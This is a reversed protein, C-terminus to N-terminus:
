ADARGSVRVCELESVSMSCKAWWPFEDADLKTPDAGQALWGPRAALWYYDGAAMNSTFEAAEGESMTDAPTYRGSEADRQSHLYRVWRTFELARKSTVRLPGDSARRWYRAVKTVDEGTSTRSSKGGAYVTISGDPFADGTAHAAKWRYPPADPRGDLVFVVEDREAPRSKVPASVSPRAWFCQQEVGNPYPYGNTRDFSLVQLTRHLEVNFRLKALPSDVVRGWGYGAVWVWEGDTVSSFASATM